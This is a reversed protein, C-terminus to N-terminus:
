NEQQAVIPFNLYGVSLPVNVDNKRENEPVLEEIQQMRTWGYHIGIISPVMIIAVINRRVWGM